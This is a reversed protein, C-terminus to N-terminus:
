NSIGISQWQGVTKKFVENETETDKIILTLTAFRSANRAAIQFNQKLRIVLGSSRNYNLQGRRIAIALDIGKYYKYDAGSRVELFTEPSDGQQIFCQELPYVSGRSECLLYATFPFDEALKQKKERDALARNSKVENPTIGANVSQTRDRIFQVFTDINSNSPAYGSDAMEKYAKEYDAANNIGNSKLFKIGQPPLKYERAFQFDQPSEYDAQNIVEQNGIPARRIVSPQQAPLATQASAGAAVGAAVSAAAPASGPPRTDVNASAKFDCGSVSRLGRSILAGKVSVTFEGDSTYAHAIKWTEGADLRKKETRGDGLEIEAGCAAGTANAVSIAFSRPDGGKELSLVQQALGAQCSLGIALVILWLSKIRM